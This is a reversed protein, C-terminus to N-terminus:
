ASLIWNRLLFTIEIQGRFGLRGREVGWGLDWMECIKGGLIIHGAM